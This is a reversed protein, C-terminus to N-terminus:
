PGVERTELAPLRVAESTRLFWIEGAVEEGPYVAQVAQRYIELQSRYSEAATAPDQRVADTKYDIVVLSRGDRVLLDCAGTWTRGGADRHLIPIERGLVEVGALRARLASRLFDRLITEAAAAAAAGASAPLAEDAALRPAARRAGELLAEDDRLDWRELAAHVVLGVLRASERGSEAATEPASTLSSEDPEFRDLARTGSPWSLPPRIEGAARAAIGGHGAAAAAIADITVAGPTARPPSSREIVRHEVLGEDLTGSPPFAPGDGIRYGLAELRERWPAKGTLASNVLFLRERARTCAVYLVRKEEAQEHRRTALTHSVWASNSRGDPLRIALAGGGDRVWAVRVGPAPRERGAARGLDPVFVIPFELGKAKHISLIRVADLSEDALPSDGETRAGDFEEELAAITEVLSLGERAHRRALGALKGLNALRQAGDWASAHVLALPPRVLAEEVLRDVPEVRTRDRFDEVMRLVRAVGPFLSADVAAGATRGLRGGAAAFRALETDSVAGLPSRLVALLAPADNPSAVARLFSLLDGIEARSGFERGGDVVFPIGARRLSRAFLGAHTMARLLIAVQRYGLGGGPAARAAIWEAIAEAEAVRGATAGGESAVSWIAVRPQGARDDARASTIAEYPPEYDNQWAGAGGMWGHFLRNLPALLDSPSRFSTTLSLRRGGCAEVHAVARRFSAMDAGRFRYISQKPDGVIFLRGAELRTKYPDSAPEGEDREALFFLIDYQLPDTDQFEDVLLRDYRRALSRRTGPSRRLLDATLRLLGDFGVFGSALLRERASDGLPAAADALATVTEDDVRELLRLLDCARRAAGEAARADAEGVKKGANLTISESFEELRMASPARRLAEFGGGLLAELLVTAAGLVKDLKPPLKVGRTRVERLGDLTETVERRLREVAGAPEPVAAGPPISFGSLASALDLVTDIGYCGQFARRWVEPRRGAGGLELRLYREAEIPFLRGAAPGDDVLFDLDVGAEAPHRRLIDACMGHLTGIAAADLGQLAALARQRVRAPDERTARLFAWSRDADLSPDLQADPTSGAARRRLGDLGRALRTRLEAAAKETFTVAALRDITVAGSGLLNLAREVLLATKGTGAGATVVLNAGLERAAIERDRADALAPPPASV